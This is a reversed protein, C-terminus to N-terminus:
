EPALGRWTELPAASLDDAFHVISNTCTELSRDGRGLPNVHAVISSELLGDPPPTGHAAVSMLLRIPHFVLGGYLFLGEADDVSEDLLLLPDSAVERPDDWPVLLFLAV